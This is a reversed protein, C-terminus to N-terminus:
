IFTQQPMLTICLPVFVQMLLRSKGYIGGLDPVVEGYEDSVGWRQELKPFLQLSVEKFLVVDCHM